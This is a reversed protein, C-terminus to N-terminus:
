SSSRYIVTMAFEVVRFTVDGPRAGAMAIERASRSERFVHHSLAVNLFSRHAELRDVLATLDALTLATGSLMIMSDTFNLGVSNISVRPPVAEELDNLLRTWSFAHRELIQNAFTVEHQIGTIREDSLNPEARSTKDLSQRVTGQARETALRYYAADELLIQRDWWLWGDTGLSGLLLLAMVWQVARILDFGWAALSIRLPPLPPPASVMPFWPLLTLVSGRRVVQGSDPGLPVVRIRLSEMLRPDQSVPEPTAPAGESSGRDGTLFLPRPPDAPAPPPFLHRDVYVQLTALLEDDANPQFVHRPKLRLFDLLGRRLAIFFVGDQSLHAFFLEDCCLGKDSALAALMAPRCLDFTELSDLGVSVPVCGAEECAQEFQIVIEDRVAVALVRPPTARCLRYGLRLGVPPLTFEKQLRWRLLAEREDRKRPLTEFDFLAAWACLDPLTLSVPIHSSRGTQGHLGNLLGRIQCALASVDSVNRQSASIQVLGRPLPQSWCRPNRHGWWGPWRDRRLEVMDIARATVRLELRPPSVPWLTM